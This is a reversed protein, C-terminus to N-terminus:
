KLARKAKEVDAMCRRSDGSTLALKAHNLLAQIAQRRGPDGLLSLRRELKDIETQCTTAHSPAAAFLLGLMFLTAFIDRPM